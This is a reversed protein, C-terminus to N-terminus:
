EPINRVRQLSVIENNINTTYSKRDKKYIGKGAFQNYMKSVFEKSGIVCGHTLYRSRVLRTTKVPIKFGLDIEEKATVKSISGKIGKKISGVAYLFKRYLLLVKKISINFDDFIGTFYLIDSIDTNNVRAYVSCWRYDELREVIRARVPNLDIYALCHTLAAKKELLISKFRSGWFYGTRNKQKNYWRSFTEKISKMYYSIDSLRDIIELKKLHSLEKGQTLVSVRKEIEDDSYNMSNESKIILHFHNDMICFGLLKVFYLSSFKNILDMLYDKETIGLYFEQGVTRSILHYYVDDGHYKIRGTRPM